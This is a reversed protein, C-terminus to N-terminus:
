MKHLILLSLAGKKSRIYREYSLRPTTMLHTGEQHDMTLGMDLRFKKLKMPIIHETHGTSVLLHYPNVVLLHDTLMKM